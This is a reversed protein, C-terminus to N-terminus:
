SSSVLYLGGMVLLVGSVARPSTQEGLICVGGIYVLVFTLATFPYVVTLPVRSLAFIWLMTGLGYLMLGLFIWVNLFSLLSERGTAGLKFLMQGAAACLTGALLSFLVAAPM